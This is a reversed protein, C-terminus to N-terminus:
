IGPRKKGVDADSSIVSLARIRFQWRQCHRRLAPFLFFQGASPVISRQHWQNIKKTPFHFSPVKQSHTKLPIRKWLSPPVLNSLCAFIFSSSLGPRGGFLSYSQRCTALGTWKRFFAKGGGFCTLSLRGVDIGGSQAFSSEQDQSLPDRM